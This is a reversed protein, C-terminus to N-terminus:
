GPVGACGGGQRQGQRRAEALETIQKIVEETQDEKWAHIGHLYKRNKPSAQLYDWEAPDTTLIAIQVEHPLHTRIASNVMTQLQRTKGCGAECGILIAGIDPDGLKMLFPLGDMCQGLLITHSPVHQLSELLNDLTTQHNHPIRVQSRISLRHRNQSLLGPFLHQYTKRANMLLNSVSM